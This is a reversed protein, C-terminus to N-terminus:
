GVCTQASASTVVPSFTVTVLDGYSGSPSKGVGGEKLTARIPLLSASAVGARSCTRTGFATNSAVEQGLFNVSYKITQAAQGLNGGPFTLKFDNQSAVKIQYPGSSRVRISNAASTTYQAPAATVAATTLDGIEGFDLAAGAYYAQLASVVNVDIRIARAAKQPTPVSILGGEGACIYSIDLEIPEGATLDAGAPVTVLLPIPTSLDTAFLGGFDFRIEGAATSGSTSPLGRPRGATSGEPYLVRTGQYTVEIAPSGTPATLVLSVEGTRGVILGRNRRLVLPVSTQSLGSTAFPDYTITAAATAEGTVGCYASIQTQAAAPTTCLAAGAAALAGLIVARLRM